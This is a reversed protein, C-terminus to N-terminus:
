ATGAARGSAHTRTLYDTVLKRDEEAGLRRELLKAAGAIALEVAERRVSELAADREREIERKAREIMEEQEARARTLLEQRTREAAQKAEAIFQQSQRRAEALADRQEAVLREAAERDQRAQDLTEQIRQERAAAYGLIPPFAWRKLVWLLLLFIVVTWFSVNTSLDFISPAEEAALTMLLLNM